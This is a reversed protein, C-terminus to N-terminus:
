LELAIEVQTPNKEYHDKDELYPLNDMVISSQERPRLISISVEKDSKNLSYKGIITLAPGIGINEIEVVTRTGTSGGSRLGLSTVVVPRFPAKALAYTQKAYYITVGVLALTAIFLAWNSDMSM